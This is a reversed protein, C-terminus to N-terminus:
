TGMKGLYEKLVFCRLKSGNFRLKRVVETFLLLQYKKPFDPAYLSM